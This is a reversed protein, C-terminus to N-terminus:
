CNVNCESTISTVLFFFFSLKVVSILGLIIQELYNSSWLIWAHIKGCLEMSVLLYTGVAGFRFGMINCLGIHTARIERTM